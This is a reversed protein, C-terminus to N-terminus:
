EVVKNNWGELQFVYSMKLPTSGFYRDPFLATKDCDAYKLIDCLGSRLGVFVGAREVAAQIQTIPLNLAITGDIPKEGPGVNTFIRYGELSFSDIVERWYRDPINGVSKAYPSLIVSRGPVIENLGEDSDCGYPHVPEVDNDLGYVGCKYMQEFTIPKVKMAKTLDIVYPKDTHAIFSDGDREYLIAQVEEDMTKRDLIRVNQVHFLESVCGCARGVVSVVYKTIGRKKLYMPLYSLAYFVDGLAAFPCYVKFYGPYDSRCKELLERGRQLRNSFRLFTDDSLSYESFSDYEVLKVITGNFGLSRLQTEMSVAARAAILVISKEFSVVDDCVCVPSMIPIGNYDSGCKASNNDLIGYVPINRSKLEEALVETANCMGFLWVRGDGSFANNEIIKNLNDIMEIYHENDM